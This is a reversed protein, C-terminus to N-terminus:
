FAEEVVHAGEVNAGEDAYGDDEQGCGQGGAVDGGAAGGADVWQGGEALFLPRQVQLPPAQGERKGRGSKERGEAFETNFFGEVEDGAGHWAWGSLHGDGARLDSRRPPHGM